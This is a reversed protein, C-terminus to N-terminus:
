DDCGWKCHSSPPVRHVCPGQRSGRSSPKSTYFRAAKHTDSEASGEPLPAPVANVAKSEGSVPAGEAIRGNVAARVMETLSVGQQKAAADWLEKEEARVRVNVLKKATM